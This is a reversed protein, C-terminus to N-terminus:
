ATRGRSAAVRRFLDTIGVRPTLWEILRPSLQALALMPRIPAGSEIIEPRDERIARVVADAIKATTTESMIRNSRHGDQVMRAYM